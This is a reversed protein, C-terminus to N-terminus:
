TTEIARLFYPARDLLNAVMIEHATGSREWNSFIQQSHELYWSISQVFYSPIQNSIHFSDKGHWEIVGMLELFSLTAAVLGEGYNISCDLQDAVTQTLQAITIPAERHSPIAGLVSIVAAQADKLNNGVEINTVM